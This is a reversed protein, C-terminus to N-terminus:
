FQRLMIKRYEVKMPGGVHVQMGMLGKSMRNVTDNDTVDSMLIGNIYHKLSNGKIVLRCTNWGEFNIKTQLDDSTGLSGTVTRHTWANNQLYNQFSDVQNKNLKNVTVIEGRYALTTRKREEYNQGTYHNAGDIDAQYGKLAQPLGPVGVSRYNIGSNGDKSIKFECTLEFNGPEGGSWIIFNNTKLLTSPTIEGVLNGNEVKWYKADYKWGNLTKGDFIQVFAKSAAKKQGFSNCIFLLVASLIFGIKIFNFKNKQLMNNTKTKQINSLPM